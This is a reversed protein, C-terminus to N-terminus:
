LLTDPSLVAPFPIGLSIVIQPSSFQSVVDPLFTEPSIVAPLFTDPINVVPSLTDPNVVVLLLKDQSTAATYAVHGSQHCSPLM